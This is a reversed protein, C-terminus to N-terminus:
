HIWGDGVIALPKAEKVVGVATEKILAIRIWGVLVWGAHADYNTGIDRAKWCISANWHVLPIAVAIQDIRDIPSNLLHGINLISPVAATANFKTHHEITLRPNQM